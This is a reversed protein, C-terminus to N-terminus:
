APFLCSFSSPPLSSVENTSTGSTTDQEQREETEEAATRKLEKVLSSHEGQEAVLYAAERETM